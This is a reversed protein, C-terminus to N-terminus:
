RPVEIVCDSLAFTCCPHIYAKSGAYFLTSTKSDPIYIEGGLIRSRCFGCEGARCNSKVTVGGRELAVLITESAPCPIKFESDGQKVTLEYSAAPDGSYDPQSALDRPPAVVGHHIYKAPIDLAALEKDIFSYMAPPGCIFMDKYGGDICYKKILNRDIFGHMCGPREEDSLVYGVRIRGCSALKQLLQKYPASEYTENGYLITMRCSELGEYVAYALSLFPTIGSGGAICVIEETDRSKEYCLTEGFPATIDAEYDVVFNQHIYGAVFSGPYNEVSIRYEGQEALAPSSCISYARQTHTNGVTVNVCLHQGAKFGILPSGDKSCLRFTRLTPTEDIVERVVLKQHIPRTNKELSM